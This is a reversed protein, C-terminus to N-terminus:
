LNVRTYGLCFLLYTGNEGRASGPKLLFYFGILRFSHQERQRRWTGVFVSCPNHAWHIFHSYIDYSLFLPFFILFSNIAAGQNMNVSCPWREWVVSRLCIGQREDRRMVPAGMLTNETDHILAPHYIHVGSAARQNAGAIEARVLSVGPGARATSLSAPPGTSLGLHLGIGKITGM